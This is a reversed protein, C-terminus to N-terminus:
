LTFSKSYLIVVTKRLDKAETIKFPLRSNLYLFVLRLTKTDKHLGIRQATSEKITKKVIKRNTELLLLSWLKIMSVVFSVRILLWNRAKLFCGNERYDEQLTSGARSLSSGPVANTWATDASHCDTGWAEVFTKIEGHWSERESFSYYYQQVNSCMHGLLIVSRWHPAIQMLM